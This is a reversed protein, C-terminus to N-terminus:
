VKSTVPKGSVPKAAKKKGTIINGIEKGINIFTLHNLPFELLVHSFSLFFLWDLGVAYDYAYLALSALWLAIVAIFRAKPINQWQIISTKSFWNLYHYMYAFGIFSMISLALTDHYLYDNIAHVYQTFSIDPKGFDHLKFVSFIYHNLGIFGTSWSDYGYSSKVYNSVHYGAHAPHYCLLGITVLVFVVLSSIGSFSRGRLAGILIFLATFIFVHILTPLFYGFIAEFSTTNIIFNSLLAAIFLAVLRPAWTKFIVFFLAAMFAMYTIFSSTEPPVGSILNFYM